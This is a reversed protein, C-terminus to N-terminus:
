YSTVHFRKQFIFDPFKAKLKYHILLKLPADIEEYFKLVSDSTLCM